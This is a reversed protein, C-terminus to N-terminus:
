DLTELFADIRTMLRERGGAAYDSDFVLVPLDFSKKMRVRETYWHDCFKLTKVIVGSAKSSRLSEGIREYVDTNPRARACAPRYFARLALSAVISGAAPGPANGNEVSNLGTCTLPLVGYGRAELEELLVTDEYALPSGALLVTRSPRFPASAALVAEFYEALGQPPSIFFLHFLEHLDLPSVTGSRAARGLVSAAADTAEQWAAASAPDFVIGFCAEIDTVARVVQEAFYRASAQTRTAPLQIPHVHQGLELALTDLGRRMADCTFLGAWLDVLGHLGARGSVNGMLTKVLPCVDPRVVQEGATEADADAGCLVRVPIM